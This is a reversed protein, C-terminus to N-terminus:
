KQTHPTVWRESCTTMHKSKALLMWISEQKRRCFEPMYNVYGDDKGSNLLILSHMVQGIESRM